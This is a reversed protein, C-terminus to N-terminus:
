SKKNSKPRQKEGPLNTTAALAEPPTARGFTYYYKRIRWDLLKNTWGCLTSATSKVEISMEKAFLNESDFIRQDLRGRRGVRPCAYEAGTMGVVNGDWCCVRQVLAVFNACTSLHESKKRRPLLQQYSTEEGLEGCWSWARFFFNFIVDCDCWDALWNSQEANPSQEGKKHRRRAFCSSFYINGRLIAKAISNLSRRFM